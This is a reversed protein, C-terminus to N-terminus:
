NINKTNFNIVPINRVQVIFGHMPFKEVVLVKPRARVEFDNSYVWMGVHNKYSIRVIFEQGVVQIM